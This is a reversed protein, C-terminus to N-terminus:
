VYVRGSGTAIRSAMFDYSSAWATTGCPTRVVQKAKVGPDWGLGEGHIVVRLGAEAGDITKYINGGTVDFNLGRGESQAAEKM